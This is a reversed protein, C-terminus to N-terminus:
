AVTLSGALTIASSLASPHHRQQHSVWAFFTNRFATPDVEVGFTAIVHELGSGKVFAVSEALAQARYGPTTACLLALAASRLEQKLIAVGVQELRYQADADRRVYVEAM